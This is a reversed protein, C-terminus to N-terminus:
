VRGQLHSAGPGALHNGGPGQACAVSGIDRQQDAGRRCQQVLILPKDLTYGPFNHRLHCRVGVLRCLALWCSGAAQGLIVGTLPLWIVHLPPKKVSELDTQECHSLMEQCKYLSLAQLLFPLLLMHGAQLLHSRQGFSCCHAPLGWPSAERVQHLHLHSQPLQDRVCGM